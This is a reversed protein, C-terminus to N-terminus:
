RRGDFFCFDNWFLIPFTHSLLADFPPCLIRRRAKQHYHATAAYTPVFLSSPLENGSIPDWLTQFNLVSSILVVGQLGVGFRDLLHTSLNAVHTTGYSERAIYLLSSGLVLAQAM